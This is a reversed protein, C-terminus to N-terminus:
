HAYAPLTQVVREEPKEEETLLRELDYRRYLEEMAFKYRRENQNHREVGHRYGNERFVCCIKNIADEEDAKRFYHAAEGPKGETYRIVATLFGATKYGERGIEEYGEVEQIKQYIKMAYQPQDTKVIGEAISLAMSMNGSKIREFAEHAMKEIRKDM